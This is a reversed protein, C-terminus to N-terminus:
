SFLGRLYAAQGIHQADDDIVSVLRVGLTVPPDWNDDVIRDLDSDTLAAIYEVSVAHTADYYNRLLAADDVVVRAAEDASHGYGTDAPSFPLGFRDVWGGGVWVEDTGAVDAVQVDQVRTLHWVLWAITNAGPGPARNLVDASLGDLVAHVNEAIRGLGDTLVDTSRM